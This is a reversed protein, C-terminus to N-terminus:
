AKQVHPSSDKLGALALARQAATLKGRESLIRQTHTRVVASGSKMAATLAADSAGGTRELVWLGHALRRREDIKKNEKLLKDIVPELAKRVSRADRHALQNTALLRVTLNPHGLDSILDSITATTWDQRPAKTGTHGKGTYVIRWIRGRHRDRKPHHLDVEYHGIICNYFDAVYLAGDPGLKIDVPRFWRDKSDLFVKQKARPSAATWTLDFQIIQNTVVDGVFASGQYAKPFQDASYYVIGAIATSGDYKSITEPGYGLGDHPKGFSPYYAG